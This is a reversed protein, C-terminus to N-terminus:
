GDSDEVRGSPRVIVAEGLADPGGTACLYSVCRAAYASQGVGSLHGWGDRGLTCGDAHSGRWWGRWSARCQPCTPAPDRPAPAPARRRRRSM